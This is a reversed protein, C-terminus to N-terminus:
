LGAGTSTTERIFGTDMNKATLQAGVVAASSPDTIAGCLAATAVQSQGFLSGSISVLCLVGAALGRVGTLM